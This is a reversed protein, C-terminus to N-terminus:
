PSVMNTPWQASLAPTLLSGMSICRWSRGACAAPDLTLREADIDAFVPRAGASVVALATYAATLAPVIVEDGTGIGAARLLLTIADTGSAVGVAHQAGSAAAFEAEFADVEPGLVFWGSALVRDIASRVDAADDGPRLDIFPIFSSTV